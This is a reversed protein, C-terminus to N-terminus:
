YRESEPVSNLSRETGQKDYRDGKGKELRLIWLWVGPSGHRFRVEWSYLESKAYRLRQGIETHILTCSQVLSKYLLKNKCYFPFVSVTFIHPVFFSNLRRGERVELFFFHQLEYCIFLDISLNIQLRTLHVNIENIHGFVCKSSCLCPCKSVDILVM